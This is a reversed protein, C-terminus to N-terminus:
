RTSAVYGSQLAHEALMAAREEYLKRQRAWRVRDRLDDLTDHALNKVVLTKLWDPLAGGPDFELQYEVDTRREGRASFRYHAVFVPMRVAGRTPPLEPTARIRVTLEGIGGYEVLVNVAVDRDRVPWPADMRAYVLVERASLTKLRRMEACHSTWECARDVDDLVALAEWVSAELTARARYVTRQEGELKWSVIGVESRVEEWGAEARAFRPVVFFGVLVLWRWM